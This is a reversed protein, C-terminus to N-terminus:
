NGVRYWNQSRGFLPIGIYGRIVLSTNSPDLTIKCRYIKGSLPDLIEGGSWVNVDSTPKLGELIYMGVIRQNHKSGNCATCVENEDYGPRPYIKVIQGTLEHQSNETIHIISKQKGTVDDITKWYGVPSAALVNTFFIFSSILTILWKM